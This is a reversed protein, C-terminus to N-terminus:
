LILMDVDYVYWLRVDEYEQINEMGRPLLDVNNNVKHQCVDVSYGHELACEIYLSLDSVLAFKVGENTSLSSIEECFQGDAAAMLHLM